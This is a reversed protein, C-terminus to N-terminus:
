NTFVFLHQWCGSIDILLVYIYIYIALSGVVISIAVIATGVSVVAVAVLQPSFELPGSGSLESGSNLDVFCIAKFQVYLLQFRIDASRTCGGLSITPEM